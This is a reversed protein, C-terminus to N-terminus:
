SFSLLSKLKNNDYNLNIINVYNLEKMVIEMEKRGTSTPTFLMVGLRDTERKMLYHKESLCNMKFNVDEMEKTRARIMNIVSEYENKRHSLTLGQPAVMSIFEFDKYKILLNELYKISYENTKLFTTDNDLKELTVKSDNISLNEIKSLAINGAYTHAVDVINTYKVSKFYNNILEYDPRTETLRDGLEYGVNSMRQEVDM